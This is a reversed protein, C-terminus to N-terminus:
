AKAVITVKIRQKSKREESYVVERAAAAAYLAVLLVKSTKLYTSWSM